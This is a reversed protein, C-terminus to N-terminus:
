RHASWRIEVLVEMTIAAVAQGSLVVPLILVPLGTNLGLGSTLTDLVMNIGDAVTTGVSVINSSLGKVTVHTNQVWTRNLISEENANVILGNLVTAVPAHPAAGAPNQDDYVHGPLRKETDTLLTADALLFRVGRPDGVAGGTTLEGNDKPFTGIANGTTIVGSFVLVHESGAPRDSPQLAM